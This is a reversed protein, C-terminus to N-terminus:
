DRQGHRLQVQVQKSYRLSDVDHEGAHMTM